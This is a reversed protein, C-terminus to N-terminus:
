AKSTGGSNTGEAHMLAAAHDDCAHAKGNIYCRSETRSMRRTCQGCDYELSPAIVPRHVSPIMDLAYPFITSMIQRFNDSTFRSRSKAL